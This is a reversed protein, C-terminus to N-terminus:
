LVRIQVGRTTIVSNDLCRAIARISYIGESLPWLATFPPGTTAIKRDNVLYTLYIVGEPVIAELRLTQYERRLIPDIKFISGDSPFAIRFEQSRHRNSKLVLPRLDSSVEMSGAEPQPIRNEHMWRRYIPPYIEYVSYKGEPSCFFRHIDCPKKPEFGSLYIEEIEDPCHPGKLAGSIPCIRCRVIGSPEQFGWGLGYDRLRFIINRFLPAAGSIGSVNRMSRANFNGMWVGVTFNPTYGVTWNDRYGKSTGTKVAVADPLSLPNEYGFAPVRAVPDSLIDTLLYAIQPSFVTTQDQSPQYTLGDTEIILRHPRFQGSNALAMYARSLELLTVEGNGLTLGLGYHAADKTLSEFGALRLRHLLVEVGMRELVRVAPVNYSCALATRLRVPGHYTEDYNKPTFNGGRISVHTEIDALLTSPSMGQELALGYTFPKLTSGPQRRALCGNVQGSRHDDFFDASGVLALVDGTRNNLVIAAANSCDYNKMEEVQKTLLGEIDRQLYYDLTTTVRRPKYGREKLEGRVMECFHPARFRVERPILDIKENLAMSYQQKDIQANNMTEAMQTPRGYPRTEFGGRRREHPASASLFWTEEFFRTELASSEAEFVQKLIHRQRKIALDLHIYPNYLSPAQILGALFASEALSLDTPGKGFYLNSAAAIGFIQNGFSVRNLYQELIQSRTLTHELRLAQHMEILKSLLTRPHPILNRVLQQTITSGGSVIRGTRINQWAARLVARLDIGQHHFFRRDESAILCKVVYPSIQDLSAWQSVGEKDSMVERLIIGHRDLVRMSVFPEIQLVDSSIPILSTGWIALTFLVGSGILWKWWGWRM